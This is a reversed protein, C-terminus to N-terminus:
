IRDGSGDELSKRCRLDKKKHLPYLDCMNNNRERTLWRGYIRYQRLLRYQDCILGVYYRYKWISWAIRRTM